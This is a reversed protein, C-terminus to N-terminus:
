YHAPAACTPDTHPRAPLRLAAPSPALSTAPPSHTTLCPWPLQHPQPLSSALTLTTSAQCIYPSAQTPLPPPCHHSPLAGPPPSTAVQCTHVARGVTFQGCSADQGLLSLQLPPLWLALLHLATCHSFWGLLQVASIAKRQGTLIRLFLFFFRSYGSGQRPQIIIMKISGHIINFARGTAAATKTVNFDGRCSYQSAPRANM